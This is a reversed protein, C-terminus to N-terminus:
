GGDDAAIAEAVKAVDFRWRPRPGDGLKLGPLTGQRALRYVTSRNLGFRRAITAADVLEGREPERQDALREAVHDAVLDLFEPDALRRAVAQAIGDIADTRSM